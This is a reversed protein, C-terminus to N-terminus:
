GQHSADYTQADQEFQTFGIVDNSAPPTITVPTGFNSFTMQVTGSVSSSGGGLSVSEQRLLGSGDFYVHLTPSGLTRAENLAQQEEAPPLGLAQFEQQESSQIEAASFTVAYGSVTVGDVSSTGLPVVTAGKQELLKLQDLPDVNGAGLSSSSQDAIPVDIWEPGGTLASLSTGNATLGIYVHDAIVLDHEVLSNAGIAMSIDADFAQTDFDITGTGQMPISKGAATITGSIDVEATHQNLTTQTSSVVFNAPAVGAGPASPRGATTSVIGGIVGGAILVIALSVVAVRLRGRPAATESPPTTTAPQPQAVSEPGMAPPPSTGAPPGAPVSPERPAGPSEPQVPWGGAPMAFYRDLPHAEPQGGPGTDEGATEGHAFEDM